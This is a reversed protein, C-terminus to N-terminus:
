AGASSWTPRSRPWSRPLVSHRYHLSEFYFKGPSHKLALPLLKSEDFREGVAVATRAMVALHQFALRGNFFADESKPMADLKEGIHIRDAAAQQTLGCNHRLWDIPTQENLDYEEERERRALEAALRSFQLERIEIEGRLRILEHELEQRTGPVSAWLLELSM